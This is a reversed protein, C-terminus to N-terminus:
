PERVELGYRDRLLILHHEAHGAIVYLMARASVPAGAVVTRRTWAEVPTSDILRLTAQRTVRVDDLLDRIPRRDFGGAEVYPNQDFGPLPTEDGRVIRLFRCAFIRECDDLHGLVEKISWKDPAYRHLAREENVGTLADQLRSVQGRILAVPDHDGVSSIYTAHFPAYEDPTLGPSHRSM